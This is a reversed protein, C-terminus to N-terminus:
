QRSIYINMGIVFAVLIMVLITNKIHSKLKVANYGFLQDSYFREPQDPDIYLEINVDDSELFAPDTQTAFQYDEEQYCYRYLSTDLNVIKGEGSEPTNEAFEIYGNPEALVYETCETQRKAIAKGRAILFVLRVIMVLAIVAVFVNILKLFIEGGKADDYYLAKLSVGVIIMFIGAFLFPFRISEPKIGTKTSIRVESFAVLIFLVGLMDVGFFPNFCMSMVVACIIASFVWVNMNLGINKNNGYGNELTIKEARPLLDFKKM